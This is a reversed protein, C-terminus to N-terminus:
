AAARLTSATAATALPPEIPLASPKNRLCLALLRAARLSAGPPGLQKRIEALAARIESRRTRNEWLDAVTAALRDPTADNQVLEPYVTRNALLNPMALHRVHVIQRGIWWTPPATKYFVVAPLDALACELTITGSKTLALDAWELVPRAPGIQVPIEDPWAQQRLLDALAPHPVACRAQADPWRQKLRSWAGALLPGHRRIEDPRSGPLLALRPANQRTETRPAPHPNAWRDVLPHGVYRLTLRPAHPAFWDPEFPLISLLLDLNEEMEHARGPRSAWVQPSVYQVLVPRWPHFWDHRKRLYQRLAKAFRLNFGGSDIGIVIDPQRRRAEARLTTFARHYLPLRRLVDFLGITAYPTLDTVIEVGAERMAPGGAGFFEPPLATRLPQVHPSSDLELELLAGRLARVLDAGLRDGSPEGAILMISFPRM